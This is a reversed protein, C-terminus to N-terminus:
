STKAMPPKLHRKIEIKIKPVKGSRFGEAIAENIQKQIQELADSTITASKLGELEEKLRKSEEELEEVRGRLQKGNGALFTFRDIAKPYEKALEEESLRLYAGDLGFKHGM